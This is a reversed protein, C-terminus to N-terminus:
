PTRSDGFFGDKVAWLWLHAIKENHMEAYGVHGYRPILVVHCGRSAAAYRAGMFMERKDELRDGGSGTVGTM